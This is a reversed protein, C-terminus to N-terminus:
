QFIYLKRLKKKYDKDIEAKLLLEITTKVIRNFYSNVSFEDYTCVMQNKQMSRTRVSESLEIKGRLLSTAETHPIYERGLGRKILQSVGECLIAACLDAVNHFNETAVERYGQRNLVQYAYSLMYYVNRVPIM